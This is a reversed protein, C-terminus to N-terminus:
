QMKIKCIYHYSTSCDYDRWQDNSPTLACDGSGNPEGSYWYTYNFPSGDSWRWIGENAIDNAGLWYYISAPELVSTRVYEKEEASHLSVLHGGDQVCAQEATNWDVRADSLQYCHGNFM